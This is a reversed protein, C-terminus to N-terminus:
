CRCIKGCEMYNNWAQLMGQASFSGAAISAEPCSTNGNAWSADDIYNPGAPALWVGLSTSTSASFSKLLHSKALSALYFVLDGSMLMGSDAPVPPYTSSVYSTEVDAGSQAM